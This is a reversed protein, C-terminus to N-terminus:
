SKRVQLKYLLKIGNTPSVFGSHVISFKEGEMELIDITEEPKIDFQCIVKADGAKIINNNMGIAESDYSLLVGLGKYVKVENGEKHYLLCTKSNGFQNLLKKALNRMNSYNM